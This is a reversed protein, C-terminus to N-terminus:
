LWDCEMSNLNTYRGSFDIKNQTSFFADTLLKKEFRLGQSLKFLM